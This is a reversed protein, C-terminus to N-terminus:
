APPRNAGDEDAIKQDRSSDNWHKKCNRYGRNGVGSVSQRYPRNNDSKVDHGARGKNKLSM